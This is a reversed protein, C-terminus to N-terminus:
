NFCILMNAAMGLDDTSINSDNDDEDNSGANCRNLGTVPLLFWFEEM